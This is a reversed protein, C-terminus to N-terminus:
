ASSALIRDPCTIPMAKHQRSLRVHASFRGHAARSSCKGKTAAWQVAHFHRATARAQERGRATLDPDPHRGHTASDCGDEEVRQANNHSEAHRVFHVRLVYTCAARSMSSTPKPSSHLQAGRASAPAGAGGLVRRQGLSCPSKASSQSAPDPRRRNARAQIAPAPRTWNSLVTDDRDIRLYSTVAFNQFPDERREVCGTRARAIFVARKKEKHLKQPAASGM